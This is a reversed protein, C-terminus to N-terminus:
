VSRIISNVTWGNTTASSSLIMNAGNISMGFTFNATSGFDTTANEAYNVASGSWMGFITGARANSGSRITYDFWAGDYSATPISYITTIGSNATLTTSTILAERTVFASATISSSVNLSGTISVNQNLITVSSATQTFSASTVSSTLFYSATQATIIYSATAANTSYSATGFLSGTFSTAQVNGVVQLKALTPTTTGIGINGSRSVYLQTSSATPHGTTLHISGFWSGVKIYDDNVSASNLTTIYNRPSNDSPTFFISKQTQNTSDKIILSDQLLTNVYSASIANTAFSSSIANLVYSATAASQAFSASTATGSFSGSFSGTFGATAIISGTVQFTSGSAFVLNSRTGTSPNGNGIIFAGQLDSTKNYQGVITQYSGSAITLWGSARSAKSLAQTSEGEAHSYDGSAVTGTGEAHSSYGSAVTYYGEAHSSYGSAQTGSGESHAYANSAVTYYGEAHAATASATTNLGETHSWSSSALTYYGEAHSAAGFAVSGQGEAHSTQGIAYTSIGEAHGWLGSAVSFGGEAHSYQGSATTSQGEAHARTGSALTNLGISLSGSIVTNGNVDLKTNPTTTGIGINGDYNITMKETNGVIFHLDPQNAFTRNSRLIIGGMKPAENPMAETSLKFILGLSRTVATIDVNGHRLVVAENYTGVADGTQMEMFPSVGEFLGGSLILANTGGFVVQGSSSIQMRAAGATEFRLSQNDNTGLIMATNFSNGGQVITNPVHSATTAFSSSIANLVYSATTSNTAFSSSVSNLVYSATQATVVYSATQALIVYSATQATNTYSATASNTAFSSSVSYSASVANLVYSATSAFSSSIANLVYSATSAFNTYSASVANLVYSATNANNAFSSSIVYSATNANQAYSATSSNTAYSASLVNLTYSATQANNAWSATGFLSGTIGSTVNLSGTIIASGSVDLKANPSPTGIGINGSASVVTLYSTTSLDIGYGIAFNGIPSLGAWLQGNTNKYRIHSNAGSTREISLLDPVSGYIHLMNTPTTTGIGVNGANDIVFPTTDPNTTDEVLFSNSTGINTIHLKATPISIGIGVSGSGIFASNNSSSVTLQGNSGVTTVNQTSYAGLYVAGRTGLPVIAFDNIAKASIYWSAAGNSLKLQDSSSSIHLTHSPTSTGIGVNGSSSVFLKNTGIVLDNTTDSSSVTLSGTIQVNQTLPNIYSATIANIAYSSTGLLSGTITDTVLLSGTIITNGNVDLTENATSSKGVSLSGSFWNGNNNYQRINQVGDANLTGIVRTSGSVTLSGTIQTISASHFIASSSIHDAGQGVVLFNNTVGVENGLGSTNRPGSILMGGDYTSGSPNSYIWRNNQSDWLLSGTSSTGFSGSDVVTIGGFRTAPNDTNLTIINSGVQVISSTVYTFSSTGIVTLNGTITQSGSFINSGTTALSGSKATFIPDTELYYSATDAYIANSISGSLYSATQAYIANSISGSFYSATLAYSATPVIIDNFLVSGSIVINGGNSSISSTTNGLFFTKTKVYLSSTESPDTAFRFYNDDSAYLEVGTGKYDTTSGTLASGSWILIGKNKDNFGTYGVTRIMGSNKRGAFEIGTLLKDAVFLSGTILNHDGDIYHNGGTWIYPESITSHESKVGQSNYYEIKFSQQVGSKHTTPIKTRIRTYNPTYGPSNNTTVHIDALEWQGGEIVYYLIGTGTNNATFTITHDDFREKNKTCQLYGIRKGVTIPLERNFYDTYDTDFASGSVYFSIIPDSNGTALTRTGIADLKFKYIADKIFKGRYQDKIKVIDVNNKDSINRQSNIYLANPLNTNSYTISPASATTFGNFSASEYYTDIISSTKILGISVYPEISATSTVFIETEGLVVDSLLDWNGVTGANNSFVKIRAVDGSSPQLDDIEILAYSESNETPVYIPTAEYKLTYTSNNFTDYRHGYISHSPDILYESQLLISSTSLVKEIKTSFPISGTIYTSSPFPNIPTNITITGGTMDPIFVGGSLILVPQRNKSIYQVSGTDYTIFQTTDYLRDLQVGVQEQITVTPKKNFIVPATNPKNPNVSVTKQWMINSQHQWELPVEVDDIYLAEGLLTITCNGVPTTQYIFIAVIVSGDEDEDDLVEYYIPNNNYDLVEIYLPSFDRLNNFHGHIKFINRGANLQTPFEKINFLAPSTESTDVLYVPQKYLGNFVPKTNEM